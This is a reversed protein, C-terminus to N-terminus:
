AKQFPFRGTQIFPSDRDPQQYLAIADIQSCAEEPSPSDQRLARLVAEREDQDLPGALTMHFAFDDFIYPYGYTLMQEDQRPTLGSKRRREIDVDDLPARFPEFARVCDAALMKMEPCPASLTFAIWSSHATIEFPPAEFATRNATFSAAADRLEDITRGAKLVFPAKLTAHFGYHRASKTIRKLYAADFGNLHPQEVDEGTVHDRGLVRRGFAELASGEPPAFYIACRGTM